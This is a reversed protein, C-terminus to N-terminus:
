TGQEISHFPPNLWFLIERNWERTWYYSQPLYSDPVIQRLNSAALSNKGFVPFHAYNKVQHKFFEQADETTAKHFYISTKILGYRQANKDMEEGIQPILQGTLKEKYYEVQKVPSKIPYSGKSDTVYFDWKGLSNKEFSYSNLNWDKVEIIQVGVNPNFVIIDPRSGNLFPQVFILWGNYKQLDDNEKFTEDKKLTADLFKLLHAEGETLPQKFDKIQEWSPILRSFM